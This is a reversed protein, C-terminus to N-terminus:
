FFGLVDYGLKYKGIRDLEDVPQSTTTSSCETM